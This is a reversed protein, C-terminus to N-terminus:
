LKIATGTFGLGSPNRTTRLGLFFVVSLLRKFISAKTVNDMHTDYIFKETHQCIRFAVMVKMFVSCLRQGDFRAVYVSIVPQNIGHDM